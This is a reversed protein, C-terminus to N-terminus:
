GDIRALAAVDSHDAGSRFEFLQRRGPHVLQLLQMPRPDVRNLDTAGGAPRFADPPDRLDTIDPQVRPDDGEGRETPLIRLPDLTAVPSAGGLPECAGIERIM